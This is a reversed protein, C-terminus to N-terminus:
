KPQDKIRQLQFLLGEIFVDAKARKAPPLERYIEQLVGFQGSALQPDASDEGILEAFGQLPPVDMGQFIAEWTFFGANPAEGRLIAKVTSDSVTVQTGKEAARRMISPPSAGAQKMRKGLVDRPQQRRRMPRLRDSVILLINDVKALNTSSM